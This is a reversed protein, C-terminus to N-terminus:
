AAVMTNALELTRQRLITLCENMLQGLNGDGTKVYKDLRSFPGVNKIVLCTFRGDTLPLSRVDFTWSADRRFPSDAAFGNSEFVDNMATARDRRNEQEVHYQDESPM